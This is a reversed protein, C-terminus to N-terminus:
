VPHFLGRKRLEIVKQAYERRPKLPAEAPRRFRLAMATGPNATELVWDRLNGTERDPIRCRLAVKELGLGETRPTLRQVLGNIEDPRLDVPPWLYLLVRNWHLRENPARRSQFRRI